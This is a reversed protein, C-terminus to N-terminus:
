DRGMVDYKYLFATSEGEGSVHEPQMYITHAVERLADGAVFAWKPTAEVTITVNIEVTKAM